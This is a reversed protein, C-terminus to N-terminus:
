FFFGGQNLVKAEDESIKDISPLKTIVGKKGGVKIINTPPIYAPKPMVPAPVPAVYQPISPAQIPAVYQPISPASV